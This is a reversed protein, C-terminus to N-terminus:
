GCIMSEIDKPYYTLVEIGDDTVLVTDSHRFGGVGELYLGPEVSFIMGSQIGTHDGVDLFPREHMGLGLNHGTHHRTYELLGNERYFRQMEEEVDSCLKGPRILTLALEQADKMFGFLRRQEADPEGVFMTRELESTYGFIDAAAGTVLTDGTRLTANLTVAHPLASNSGIQGRFLAIASGYSAPRYLVGLTEIMTRTAESSARNSIDIERSGAKSYQQLLTHALNGWRCSERILEIERPSKRVRMEQVVDGALVITVEPILDSLRPGIYGFSSRYEDSDVALAGTGLSAERIVGALQQMPHVYGPYEPYSDVGDVAAILEAHEHELRPVFLRASDGPGLILGVPRETPHFNFGTLYFISTSNFLVAGPAGREEITNLFTRQRERLEASEIELKRM